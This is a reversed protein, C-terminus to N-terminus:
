ASRRDVLTRLLLAVDDISVDLDDSETQREQIMRLLRNEIVRLRREPPTEGEVQALSRYWWGTLWSSALWYSFIARGVGAISGSRSRREPSFYLNTVVRMKCMGSRILHLYHAFGDPDPPRRLLTKYACDIFAVDELALLENINAAIPYLGTRLRKVSEEIGKPLAASERNEELLESLIQVKKAGRNLKAIQHRRESDEPWRGIVAFYAQDIFTSGDSQLLQHISTDPSNAKRPSRALLPLLDPANAGYTQGEQSAGLEVLISLKTRGSRLQAEYNRFGAPDLPRGLMLLYAQGLFEPGNLALVHNLQVKSPILYEPM